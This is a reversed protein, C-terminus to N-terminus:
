PAPSAGPLPGAPRSTAGSCAALWGQARLARAAEAAAIANGLDTWHHHGQEYYLKVSPSAIARFAEIPSATVIGPLPGLYGLPATLRIRSGSTPVEYLLFGAGMRAAANHSAVILARDLHANGFNPPRDPVFVDAPDPLLPPPPVLAAADDAAVQQGRLQALLTKAATGIRERVASYLHSNEILWRYGPLRMLRDSIEVGPLFPQGTAVLADGDLRYLGARVNDNPDSAHWSMVVADPSWPRVRSDITALMEATGFGSVAFDLVRANAGAARLDDELRKAFSHPYDSEFGVFYSDGLLAIRCEGSPRARPPAPRDDRMGADNYRVTVDVEPTWQRFAVGPINARIGDPAGTVFRPVLPQPALARLFLEGFVLAYALAALGFLVPRVARM